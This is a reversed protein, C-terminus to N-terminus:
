PLKARDIFEGNVMLFTTTTGDANYRKMTPKGDGCAYVCCPSFGDRNVMYDLNIAAAEIGPTVEKADVM